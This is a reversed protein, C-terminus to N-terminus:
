AAKLKQKIADVDIGAERMKADAEGVVESAFVRLFADYACPPAVKTYTLEHEIPQWTEMAALNHQIQVELADVARGLRAEPTKGDEFEHWMMHWIDGVPAGVEARIEAMAADEMEKKKQKRESAEFFPIDGVKAEVLDHVLIMQVARAVDVKEELHPALLMALMAMNWTHEAVSEQRGNSLWSHRMEMKLKETVAMFRLINQAIDQM